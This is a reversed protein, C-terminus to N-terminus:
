HNLRKASVFRTAVLLPPWALAAQRCHSIDRDVAFRYEGQDHNLEITEITSLSPAYRLRGTLFIRLL